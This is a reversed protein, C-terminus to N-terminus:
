ILDCESTSPIPVEAYRKPPPLCLEAWVLVGKSAKIKKQWFTRTHSPTEVHYSVLIMAFVSPGM